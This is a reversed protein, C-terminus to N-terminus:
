EPFKKSLGTLQELLDIVKRNDHNRMMIFTSFSGANGASTRGAAWCGFWSLFMNWLDTNECFFDLSSAFFSATQGSISSCAAAVLAAGNQFIILWNKHLYKVFVAKRRIKQNVARQALLLKMHHGCAVVVLWNRLKFSFRVEPLPPSLSSDSSSIYTLSLCM